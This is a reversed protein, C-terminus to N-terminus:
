RPYEEKKKRNGLTDPKPQPTQPKQNLDPEIAKPDLKPKHILPTENLSDPVSKLPAKTLEKRTSDPIANKAVQPGAKRTTDALVKKTSDVAPKALAEPPPIRRIAALGYKTTAFKEALLKYQVLASDPIALQTEYIWAIMYRSKPALPSTGYKDAIRQLSDLAQKYKGAYMLSEAVAYVASAPDVKKETPSYGLAIRAEEAYVSRPYREVIMEYLDSEEGYKRASDSRAVESLVYLARPAKVSDLGLNLSQNLWYFTSDPVDLESYFLEGLLYSVNGLSSLLSERSPRPMLLATPIRKQSTDKSAAVQLSDRVGRVRRSGRRFVITEKQMVTSDRKAIAASSDRKSAALSSDKAAPVSPNLKAALSSTSDRKVVVTSTDKESSHSSSDRRATNSAPTKGASGLTSDNRARTSLTDRKLWLSDVDLINLISDVDIFQRHLKFYSDFATARKGADLTLEPSGGVAAHTYAIRADAYRGFDYQYLKGLQFAARAGADSRANTTDVLRFMNEAEELQGSREYTNGIEYRITGRYDLYRYDSELKRLLTLAEDYKGAHRLSIAAQIQSDYLTYDDPSYKRVDLYAAAAKDYDPISIYLDGIKVQAVAQMAGNDSAAVSKTYQDIAAETNKQSV